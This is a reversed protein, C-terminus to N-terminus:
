VSTHMDAAGRLGPQERIVRLGNEYTQAADGLRGLALQIDALALSAGLADPLYGADILSRISEAYGDRATDLHGTTWYALGLLASASGRRLHDSPEALDLVRNAHSITGTIDGALLALAARYVEVQAPLRAFEDEDFVIPEAVGHTATSATLDFWSEVRQLLSEVGTTDGTAMRAGTLSVSLVPRADLLHEPIAELWRRLTAEQRTQRLLPAALEILEAAREFDAGQLAHAIADPRDGHSEYWASARRHLEPVIDPQEDLLRAHLVDGFLHHYRYWTRHDDLPVLFLNARDLRELTAKGDRGGALADCLSGTLRNLISTHLLFDRIAEPQRELVEEALYDVVFRDDGTFNEIFAPIDDRGYM